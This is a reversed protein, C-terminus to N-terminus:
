PAKKEPTPASAAPTKEPAQPVRVYSAPDMPDGKGEYHAVGPYPFVPRKMQVEGTLPFRPQRVLTSVSDKTRWGILVDPASDEEVWHELTTLYDV